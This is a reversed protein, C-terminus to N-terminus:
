VGRASSPPRTPPSWRWTSSAIGAGRSRPWVARDGIVHFGAPIQAETCALLHAVVADPDLHCTGCGQGDAYPEHLWATRSGLAGDVFLDGALGRAGTAAILERAEDASRVAQGWYGTVEVAHDVDRIEQWDQLGGIQPGACEHVAVVGAAAFADLAARRARELQPPSLLARAQARVAHHADGALPGHPDYGTAAALDPVRARLASSALASHVDVRSLYAPRGGTAADLEALTPAAGDAWATDDWGHGWLVTDGAASDGAATHEAILALCHAKSTAARLDLGVLTLGTSTLHVHSDVFAPAVFAGRLDIVQADPHLARGVQDQGLWVVVDDRVAMATADPHSPSYIRGGILLTTTV